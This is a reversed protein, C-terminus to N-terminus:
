NVPFSGPGHEGPVNRAPCIGTGRESREPHQVNRFPDSTGGGTQRGLRDGYFRGYVSVYGALTSIKAKGHRRGRWAPWGLGRSNRGTGSAWRGGGDRERGDEGTQGLGFGATDLVRYHGYGPRTAKNSPAAATLRPGLVYWHRCPASFLGFINLHTPGSLM